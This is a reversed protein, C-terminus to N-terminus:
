SKRLYSLSGWVRRLTTFAAGLTVIWLGLTLFAGRTSGLPAIWENVRLSWESEFLSLIAACTMVFMRHPKAMPGGFDVPAGAAKGIERVYATMVAFTAAAWGLVADGGSAWAAGYGAGVLLMIDSFRDPAENWIMGDKSGKGGEVAVMGDMMNCLLRLQCGVAGGFLLLGREWGIYNGSAAFCVGGFASAVMSAASIQNPTIASKVLTDTLAKAWWHSRQSIPRRDDAEAM